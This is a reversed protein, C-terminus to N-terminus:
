RGTRRKRSVHPKTLVTVIRDPRGNVVRGSQSVCPEGIEAGCVQSCKRYDDWNVVTEEQTNAPQRRCAPCLRVHLEKGTVSPGDFVRWGLVRLAEDSLRATASCAGCTQLRGARREAEQLPEAAFLPEDM